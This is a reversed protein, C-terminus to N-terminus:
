SPLNVQLLGLRGGQSTVWAQVDSIATERLRGLPPVADLKRPACGTVYRAHLAIHVPGAYTQEGFRLPGLFRRAPEERKLAITATNQEAPVTHAHPVLLGVVLRGAILKNNMVDCAPSVEVAIAQCESLGQEWRAKCNQKTEGDARSRQGLLDSQLKAVFDDLPQDHWATHEFVDELRYVHGPWLMSQCPGLLLRSNLKAAHEATPEVDKVADAFVAASAESTLASLEAQEVNDLHLPELAALLGRGFAAGDPPVARRLSAPVTEKALAALSHLASDRWTTSDDDLPLLDNTTSTAADHVLQEWDAVITFALVDALEATVRELIRPLQYDEGDKVEAKQLKVLAVPQKSPQLMVPVLARFHDAAEDSTSWTIAVYPGNDDAIVRDLIGLVSGAAAEPDGADTDLYMDLLVLRLGRWPKEPLQEVAGSLYVAGIGGLGLAQLMGIADRETNEVVLARASQLGRM